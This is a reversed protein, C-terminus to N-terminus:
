YWRVITINQRIGDEASHRIHNSELRYTNGKFSILDNFDIVHPEAMEDEAIELTVKEETKNNLWDTQNILWEITNRDTVPYDTSILPPHLYLLIGEIIDAMIQQNLSNLVAQSKDVMYPSVSNGPAGQSIGTQLVNGNEDKVTHYYFGTGNPTHTTIRVEITQVTNGNEEEEKTITQTEKSLYVESGITQYQYTVVTNENTNTNNIEKRSLYKQKNIETYTYETENGDADREEVVFGDEYIIYVDGWELKGSFPVQQDDDYTKEKISNNGQWETRMKRKNVTYPFSAKSITVTGGDEYGRQIVYLINERIFVNFDISPLDSLWGFLQSIINQYTGTIGYYWYYDDENLKNLPYYWDHAQFSLYLGLQNCMKQMLAQVSYSPREPEESSKPYSVWLKYNTYLLKDSSYRGQYTMVQNRETIGEIKFQYPMDLLTGEVLYDFNLNGKPISLEFNDSLTHSNLSISLDSYDINSCPFINRADFHFSVQANVRRKIDFNLNVNIDPM